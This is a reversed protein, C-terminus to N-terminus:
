GERLHHPLPAASLESSGQDVWEATEEAHSEAESNLDDISEYPMWNRADPPRTKLADEIAVRMKESPLSVARWLGDLNNCNTCLFWPHEFSAYQSSGCRETDCMVCWRGHSVFAPLPEKDGRGADLSQDGQTIFKSFMGAAREPAPRDRLDGQLKAAPYASEATHFETPMDILGM